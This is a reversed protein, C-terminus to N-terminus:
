RNSAGAGEPFLPVHEFRGVDVLGLDTLKLSPIVPLALFSLTMFPDDVRSGLAAAARNVDDLERAVTHIPRDSLLGAIPLPVRALVEDGRVAALGGGMNRVEEVARHLDMNRVGVVIVNHSDHAVSSALAGERLGFGQVLGLGLRGSARHREVVAIKLIDRDTDSVVHGDRVAPKELIERTIIQGPVVEMIRAPGSESRISFREPQLPGTALPGTSLSPGEAWPFGTTRGQEVVLRGDKYVRSVAFSNLDELVVLDARLGPGVAGRDRLGFYVAPNLSALRIATVPPLGARIARRVMHDLHGRRLIDQPHLDDSVFCFRHANEPTVAPLLADLNRASTGERIMVIMGAAAKERAEKLTACEHDSRIGAALYAQLDEGTLGPCHGDVVRGRFLDIKALVEPDGHIVGPFNMVEALGLVRPEQLLTELERAGLTAGATELHTAPVCSPAMFFTDFPLNESADLLLHVGALGMVNAIEHPDAVLATTGHVILAEALRAPMLMSSEIHIHGDILGPAIWMGDMDVAERGEYGPGLGVVIGDHVAVDVADVGGTFLNVVRGNKLVLDAPIRQGGALVLNKIREVQSNM